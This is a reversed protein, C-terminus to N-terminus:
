PQDAEIKYQERFIKQILLPHAKFMDHLFERGESKLTAGGYKHGYHIAAYLLLKNLPIRERFLARLPNTQIHTLHFGGNGTALAFFDETDDINSSYPHSQTHTDQTLINKITAVGVNGGYSIHNGTTSYALSSPPFQLMSGGHWPITANGSFPHTIKISEITEGTTLNIRKITETNTTKEIGIIESGTPAIRADILSYIKEAISPGGGTPFSRVITSDLKALLVLVTLGDPTIACDSPIGEQLHHTRIIKSPLHMWVVDNHTLATILSRKPSNEWTRIYNVTKSQPAKFLEHSSSNNEQIQLVSGSHTGILVTNNISLHGLATIPVATETVSTCSDAEKRFLTCNKTTPTTWFFANPTALTKGISVQISGINKISRHANKFSIRLFTHPNILAQVAPAYYFPAFKCIDRIEKTPADLVKLGIELLLEQPYHVTSDLYHLAGCLMLLENLDLSTYWSGHDKIEHYRNIIKKGDDSLLTQDSIDNTRLQTHLRILHTIDRPASKDNITQPRSAAIEQAILAVTEKDLTACYELYDSLVPSNKIAASSLAIKTGLTALYAKSGPPTHSCFVSPNPPVEM